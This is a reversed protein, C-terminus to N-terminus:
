KCKMKGGTSASGKDHKKPPCDATNNLLLTALSTTFSYFKGMFKPIQWSRHCASLTMM